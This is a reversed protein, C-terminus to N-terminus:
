CPDYRAELGMVQMTAAQLRPWLEAKRKRSGIKSLRAYERQLALRRARAEILETPADVPGAAGKASQSPAHKSADPSNTAEGVHSGHSLPQHRPAGLVSLFCVGQSQSYFDASPVSLFGGAYTLSTDLGQPLASACEAHTTTM